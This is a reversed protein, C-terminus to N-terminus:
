QRVYIAVLVIVAGIILSFVMLLIAGGASIRENVRITIENIRGCAYCTYDYHQKHKITFNEM